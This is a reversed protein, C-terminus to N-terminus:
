SSRASKSECMAEVVGSFVSIDIAHKDVFMNVDLAVMVFEDSFNARSGGDHELISLLTLGGLNNPNELSVSL